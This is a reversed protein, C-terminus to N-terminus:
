ELNNYRKMDGIDENETLPKWKSKMDTLEAAKAMDKPVVTGESYMLALEYYAAPTFESLFWYNTQLSRAFVSKKHAPHQVAKSFWEFALKENIISKDYKVYGKKHNGGRVTDTKGYKYIQGLHYMCAPCGALAGKTFWEIAKQPDNGGVIEVGWTKHPKQNYWSGLIVFADLSGLAAAKELEAICESDMYGLRLSNQLLGNLNNNAAAQKIWEQGTNYPVYDYCDLERGAYYLTMRADDDGKLALPMLPLFEAKFKVETKKKSAARIAATNADSEAQWRAMKKDYNANMEDVLSGIVTAAAQVYVEEKTTAGSFANNPTYNALPDNGSTNVPIGATTATGSAETANSEESTEGSAAIASSGPMSLGVETVSNDAVKSASKVPAKAPNSKENVFDSLTSSVYSLSTIKVNRISLRGSEYLKVGADTTAQKYHESAPLRLLEDWSIHSAGDLKKVNIDGDYLNFSVQIRASEEIANLVNAPIQSASYTVGKIKLSNVKISNLSHRFHPGATIGDVYVSVNCTADIGIWSPSRDEIHRIEGDFRPQAFATYSACLLLFLLLKKM